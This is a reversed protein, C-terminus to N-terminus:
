IDSLEDFRDLEADDDAQTPLMMHRCLVYIDETLDQLKRDANKKAIEWGGGSYHKAELLNSVRMLNDKIEQAKVPDCYGKVLAYLGKLARLWTEVLQNTSAYSITVMLDSIVKYYVLRGDYSPKIAGKEEEM